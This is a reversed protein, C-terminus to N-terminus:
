RRAHLYSSTVSAILVIATLFMFAADAQNQKCRINLKGDYYGPQTVGDMTASGGNLLDNREMKDWSEPSGDSCKLGILKVAIIVGGALNLLLIFADIGLGVISQLIDMFRGAIGVFAGVLSAAGVFAAYGFVVPLSNNTVQGKILTATLGIVVVAFLAQACRLGFDVTNSAM